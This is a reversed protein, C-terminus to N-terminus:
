PRQAPQATLAHLEAVTGLFAVRDAYSSFGPLTAAEAYHWFRWPSYAEPITPQLVGIDMIWLPLEGAYLGDLHRGLISLTAGLVPPKGLQRTLLEVAKRTQNITKFTTQGADNRILLM